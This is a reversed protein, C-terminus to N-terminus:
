DDHSGFDHWGPRKPRLVSTFTHWAVRTGLTRAVTDAFRFHIGLLIRADVVEEAADSLKRYLRPNTCIAVSAPVAKYVEFPVADTRFFLQLMATFAGTLGNAGSVYDPYPPTQSQAPTSPFHAGGIFPQWTPDGATKNNGDAAGNQIATIPRWVNYYVKSEWVAIAADAGALNALALLRATDGLGLQRSIAMDRAVQNWQLGFNGSWFRAMDTDAPAPCAGAAPHSLTSGKAKVENYDKTYRDSTLAPAPGPRFQSPSSMVFPTTTALYVFSMSANAPPTPRWKGIEMSGNFPLPITTTTGRIELLMRDAAAYGVALGADNGDLYPKFLADLAVQPDVAPAAPPACIRNDSLVRYAAAAAAAAKSGTAPDTPRYTDYRQEIAQIADHVAVQALALDMLSGPGPRSLCAAGIANFETVVNASAPLAWSAALLCALGAAASRALPLALVPTTEPENNDM